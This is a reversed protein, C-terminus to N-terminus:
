INITPLKIAISYFQAFDEIPYAKLNPPLEESMNQDPYIILCDVIKTQEAPTKYGLLTLIKRDRSYGSIQRIDNPDYRNFQYIKKYKTDIIVKYNESVLLFDPEGYNGSFQYHIQNSFRDKLLGLVYLEFLKPMDIWFPPVKVKQSPQMGVEKFNYGFRKLILNSLHIAEKYEKYFSNQTLKKISHSDIIEDVDDFAPSCYNIIPVTYETYQPYSSLYKQVFKLTHKLIKNEIGNFGFDEYECFTKHPKNKIINQKLSKSIIVKGKIKSTLNREVRYYSKKLGKRVIAKLLQLFQIVLVPTILDLKQEIRIHPEDFKIEYLNQISKAVDSHRLCSFLMKLYDTQQSQDNLKPAVAVALENQILWDIGIYYNCHIHKISEKQIIEICKADEQKNFLISSPFLNEVSSIDAVKHEPFSCNLLLKSM